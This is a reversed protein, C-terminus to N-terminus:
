RQHNFPKAGRDLNMQALTARLGRVPEDRFEKYDRVRISKGSKSGHSSSKGSKSDGSSSSSSSKGSKGGSNSSKGSKTPKAGVDPQHFQYSFDEPHEMKEAKPKPEFKGYV